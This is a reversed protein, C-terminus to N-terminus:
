PLFTVWTPPDGVEEDELKPLQVLRAVPLIYTRGNAHTAATMIRGNVGPHILTEDLDQIIPKKLPHKPDLVIPHPSLYGLRSNTPLPHDSRKSRMQSHSRSRRSYFSVRQNSTTPLMMPHALSQSPRGM